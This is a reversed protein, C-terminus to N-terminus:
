AISGDPDEFAFVISSKFGKIEEPPRVWRPKQTIKLNAIAPNRTLAEYLVENSYVPDESRVRAFVSLLMIKSWPMDHSVTQNSSLNLAERIVPVHDTVLKESTNPPFPLIVNGSPNWHSGLVQLGRASPTRTLRCNINDSIVKPIPREHPSPAQGHFRIVYRLPADNPNMPKRPVTASSQISGRSSSKPGTAEVDSAQVFSALVLPPATQPRSQSIKLCFMSTRQFQYRSRTTRYTHSHGIFSQLSFGGM